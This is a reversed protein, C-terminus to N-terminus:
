AAFFPKAIWSRHTCRVSSGIVSNGFLQASRTRRNQKPSLSELFLPKPSQRFVSGMSRADLTQVGLFHFSNHLRGQVRCRRPRSLPACSHHRFFQTYTVGADCSDPIGVPQLGMSGLRELQGLVFPKNFLQCVNPSLPLLKTGIKDAPWRSIM